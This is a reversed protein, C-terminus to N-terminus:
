ILFSSSAISQQYGINLYHINFDSVGEKWGVKLPALPIKIELEKKRIVTFHSYSVLEM